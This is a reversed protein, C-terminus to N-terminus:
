ARGREQLWRDCVDRLEQVEPASLKPPMSESATVVLVPSGIGNAEERVTVSGAETRIVARVSM